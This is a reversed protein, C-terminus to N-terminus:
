VTEELDVFIARPVHKGASTQSFFTSSSSDFQSAQKDSAVTGDPSIGHELCYLEWCANGIQIGAQGVHISIVERM